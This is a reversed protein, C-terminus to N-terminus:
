YQAFLAGMGRGFGQQQKKLQELQEPPPAGAAISGIPPPQDPPPQDHSGGVSGTGSRGPEEIGGGMSFGTFVPAGSVALNIGANTAPNFGSAAFIQGSNTGPFAFNQGLSPNGYIVPGGSAALPSYHGASGMTALWNQLQGMGIANALSPDGTTTLGHSGEYGLGASIDYQDFGGSPLGATQLYHLYDIPFGGPGAVSFDPQYGGPTGGIGAFQNYLNMNFGSGLNGPNGGSTGLANLWQTYDFPTHGPTSMDGINGWGQNGMGLTSVGPTQGMFNGLVGPNPAGYGLHQLYDHEFGPSSSPLWDAVRQAGWIGVNSPYRREQPVDWAGTQDNFVLNNPMLAHHQLIEGVDESIRGPTFWPFQGSSFGEPGRGLEPATRGLFEVVDPPLTYGSQASLGAVRQGGEPDALWQQLSPGSLGTGAYPLPSDGLGPTEPIGTRPGIEQGTDGHWDENPDYERTPLPVDFVTNGAGPMGYFHTAMYDRLGPPSPGVGRMVNDVYRLTEDQLAQWGGTQYALLGRRPDASNPNGEGANYAIAAMYPDGYRQIYTGLLGAAGFISSQPDRNNIGYRQATTDGIQMIGRAVPSDRFNTGLSTEAGYINLLFPLPVNHRQAADIFWQRYQPQVQDITVGGAPLENAM